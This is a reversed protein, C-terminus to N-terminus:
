DAVLKFLDAIASLLGKTHIAELEGYDLWVGRCDPCLDMVVRQDRESVVKDMPKQGPCRPCFLMMAQTEVGPLRIWGLLTVDVVREVSRLAEAELWNGTCAPCTLAEVAGGPLEHTVRTLAKRDRPCHM